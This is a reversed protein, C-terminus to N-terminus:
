QEQSLRDLEMEFRAKHKAEEEALQLLMERALPQRVTWSLDVYLRFAEREKQICINLVDTYNIEQSLKVNEAYAQDDATADQKVVLGLKMEELELKAKHELEEEALQTFVSKLAPDDVKSALALYLANAQVEKAIAFDFIETEAEFPKM